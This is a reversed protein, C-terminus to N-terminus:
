ADDDDPATWEWRAAPADVPWGLARLFGRAYRAPADVVPEPHVGPMEDRALADAVVVSVLMAVAAERDARPALHATTERAALREVYARLAAALGAVVAGADHGHCGPADGSEAFCQRLLEATRRLRALEGACWAELEREPDAPVDPLAAPQARTACAHVAADLLAGKSGFHRFLTVENVGAEEAIRRTTAGAAGHRAFVRAAADLLRAQTASRPEADSSTGPTTGAATAPITM